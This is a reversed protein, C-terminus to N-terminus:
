AKANAEDKTKSVELAKKSGQNVRTLRNFNLSLEEFMKLIFQDLTRNKCGPHHIHSYYVGHM